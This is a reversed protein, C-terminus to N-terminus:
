ACIATLAHLLRIVSVAWFSLLCAFIESWVKHWSFSFQSYLLLFAFIGVLMTMNHIGSANDRSYNLKNTSDWKVQHGVKAWGVGICVTPHLLSINSTNHSLNSRLCCYEYMPWRWRKNTATKLFADTVVTEICRLCQCCQYQKAASMKFGLNATPRDCASRYNLGQTLPSMDKRHSGRHSEKNKEGVSSSTVGRSRNQRFHSLRRPNVFM